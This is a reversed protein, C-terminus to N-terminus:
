HEKQVAFYIQTIFVLYINPKRKRIFLETVIPSFKKNSRMDAIMNDFVILMKRKKNQITNKLIKM